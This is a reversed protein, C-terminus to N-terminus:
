WQGEGEVPPRPSGGRDTTTGNTVIGNTATSNTAKGDVGAVIVAKGPVRWQCWEDRSNYYDIFAHCTNKTITTGKEDKDANTAEYDKCHTQPGLGLPNARFRIVRQLFQERTESM